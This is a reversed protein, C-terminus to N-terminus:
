RLDFCECLNVLTTSIKYFWDNYGRSIRAVKMNKSLNFLQFIFNPFKMCNWLFKLMFNFSLESGFYFELNEYVKLKEWDIKGEVFTRLVQSCNVFPFNWDFEDYIWFNSERLVFILQFKIFSIMLVKEFKLLNWSKRWISCDFFLLWSNWVVEHFNWWKTKGASACFWLTM